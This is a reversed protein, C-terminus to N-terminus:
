CCKLLFLKHENIHGSQFKQYNQLGSLNVEQQTLNKHREIEAHQGIEIEGFKGDGVVTWAVPEQSSCLEDQVECQTSTPALAEKIAAIAAPIVHQEVYWTTLYPEPELAELALKLAADKPSATAEKM